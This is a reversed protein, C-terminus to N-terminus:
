EFEGLFCFGKDVSKAKRDKKGLRITGMQTLSGVPQSLGKRILEVGAIFTTSVAGIGPLFVTVPGAPRDIKKKSNSTYM